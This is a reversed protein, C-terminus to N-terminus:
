FANRNIFGLFPTLLLIKIDFWLSWNDIYHLDCEVRQRMKEPTETEGRFGNIQAWGTLGPKMKHRNAYRDLIAGYYEDHAIAHPRPGVLSMEGRLVNILQPLEDLSTKRLFRGVRTVRPDNKTAQVVEPGDEAVYMTRFKLVTIVKNNFGHRSQRFLVPGRSDLRIVLAIVAMLPAFFILMLFSLVRDEISKLIPGWDEMPRRELELVALGDYNMLARPRLLGEAASPCLRVDVPLVSLREVLRAIRAEESLPLAILVEDLPNRRAFEILEALGGTVPVRMRAHDSTDDFVAVVRLNGNESGQRALLREAIEGSGYIAVRRAFLGLRVWRRFILAVLFHLGMLSFASLFMWTLMWGRSYFAAVKLLYGAGALILASVLLAFVIRGPQGRFRSLADFDFAGRSQLVALTIVAGLAGVTAYGEVEQAIALYTGIYLWKAIVSMAVILCADLGAVFDVVVRKSVFGSSPGDAHVPGATRKGAFPRASAGTEGAPRSRQAGGAAHAATEVSKYEAGPM